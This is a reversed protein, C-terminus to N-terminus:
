TRWRQAAHPSLRDRRHLDGGAPPGEGGCLAGAGDERGRGGLVDDGGTLATM